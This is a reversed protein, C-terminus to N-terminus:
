KLLFSDKRARLSSGRDKLAADLLRRLFLPKTIYPHTQSSYALNKYTIAVLHM